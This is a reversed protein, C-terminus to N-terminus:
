HSNTGYRFNATYEDDKDFVIKQGCFPCFLWDSSVVKNCSIWPCRYYYGGGLEEKIALKPTNRIKMEEITM